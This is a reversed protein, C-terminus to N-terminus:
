KSDFRKLWLRLEDYREKLEEDFVMPAAPLERRDSIELPEDGSLRLREPFDIRQFIRAARFSEGDLVHTQAVIGDPYVSYVKIGHRPNQGLAIASLHPKALRFELDYHLHGNLVGVVNRRASLLLALRPADLFTPPLCPEHQLYLTPRGSSRALDDRLWEWTEESFTGIGVTEIDRDLGSGVFHVGGYDFSWHTSGFVVWFNRADNDGRVAHYPCTLEEDLIAKLRRHGEISYISTNDGTLVVFAPRVETSVYRLASKLLEEKAPTLHIDAIQVFRFRPEGPRVAWAPVDASEQIEIKKAVSEGWDHIEKEIESREQPLAAPALLLAALAAALPLHLPRM